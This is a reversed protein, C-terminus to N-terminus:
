PKPKLQSAWIVRMRLGLLELVLYQRNVRLGLLPLGLGYLGFGSKEIYSSRWNHYEHEIKVRIKAMAEEYDIEAKRASELLADVARITQSDGKSNKKIKDAMAKITEFERYGM